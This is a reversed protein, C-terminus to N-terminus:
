KVEVFHRQVCEPLDDYGAGHGATFVPLCLALEYATIDPQPRWTFQRPPEFATTTFHMPEITPLETM